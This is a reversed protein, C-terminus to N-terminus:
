LRVPATMVLRGAGSGSSASVTGGIALGEQTAYFRVRARQPRRRASPAPALAPVAARGRGLQSAGLPWKSGPDGDSLGPPRGRPAMM